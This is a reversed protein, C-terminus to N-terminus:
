LLSKEIDLHTEYCADVQGPIDPSLERTTRRNAIKFADSDNVFTVEINDDCKDHPRGFPLLDQVLSAAAEAECFVIKVQNWATQTNFIHPWYYHYFRYTYSPRALFSTLHVARSSQLTNFWTIPFM